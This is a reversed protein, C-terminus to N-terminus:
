GFILRTPCSSIKSVYFEFGEQINDEQLEILSGVVRITMQSSFCTPRSWLGTFQSWRLCKDRYSCYKRRVAIRKTIKKNLLSFTDVLTRICQENQRKFQDYFAFWLLNAFWSLNAQGFVATIKSTFIWFKSINHLRIYKWSLIVSYLFRYFTLVALLM